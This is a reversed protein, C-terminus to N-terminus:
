LSVVPFILSLSLNMGFSIPNLSFWRDGMLGSLTFGVQPGSYLSVEHLLLGISNSDIFYVSIHLMSFLVVPYHRSFVSKEMTGVRTFAGTDDHKWEHKTHFSGHLNEENGAGCIILSLWIQQQCEALSDDSTKDLIAGAGGVSEPEGEAVCMNLILNWSNEM